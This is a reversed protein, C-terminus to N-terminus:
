ATDVPIRCFDLTLLSSWTRLSRLWFRFLQECDSLTTPNSPRHITAAVNELSDSIGAANVQAGTDFKKASQVLDAMVDGVLFSKEGLGEAKLNEIALETPAFLLDSAHDTLVCNIEEPMLRNRSRLGAEIHALPARIKVAVLATALTSNTEGYVLVWDRKAELIVLEITILIEGTQEAQSGSCVALKVDPDPLGIGSFFVDSM